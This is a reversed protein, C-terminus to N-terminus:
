VVHMCCWIVCVAGYWVTDCVCLVMGCWMVCQETGCVYRVASSTCLVVHVGYEVVHM